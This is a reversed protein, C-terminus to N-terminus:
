GIFSLLVPLFILGHAAGICVIGMFMRFYFIKFIRSKAFGLVAISLVNTLFIGSLISTGMTTMADVSKLKRSSKKSNRFATTIHSCSEVSIGVSMVINVLSVANLTIDWFYMLGGLDVIIMILTLLIVLASRLDLGLLLFSVIFIAALSIGISTLTDKWMTLYQEYYVYFVSYPFVSYAEENPDKGANLSTTINDAIIRAWKLAEYYDKSTKLLTHYTMFYNAGVEWGGDTETLKVGEGYAAHGAKPCEMRPNDELFYKIYKKFTEADPRM